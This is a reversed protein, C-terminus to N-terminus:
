YQLKFPNKVKQRKMMAIITLATGLISGCLAQIKDSNSELRSLHNRRKMFKNAKIKVSKDHFEPTRDVKELYKFRDVDNNYYYSYTTPISTM